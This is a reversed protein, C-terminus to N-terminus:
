CGRTKCVHFSTPHQPQQVSEIDLLRLTWCCGKMYAFGSAALATKPEEHTVWFMNLKMYVHFLLNQYVTADQQSNRYSNCQENNYLQMQCALSGLSVFCKVTVTALIVPSKHNFHHQTKLIMVLLIYYKTMM